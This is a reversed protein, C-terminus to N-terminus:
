YLSTLCVIMQQTGAYATMLTDHKDPILLFTNGPPMPFVVPIITKVLAGALM